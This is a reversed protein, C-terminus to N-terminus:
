KGPNKIVPMYKKVKKLVALKEVREMQKLVKPDLYHEETVQESAHGASKSADKKDAGRVVLQTLSSKRLIKFTCEITPTDPEKCLIEKNIHRLNTKFANSFNKDNFPNGNKDTLLYPGKPNLERIDGRTEESLWIPRSKEAKPMYYNVGRKKDEGVEEIWTEGTKMNIKEILMNCVEEGRCSNEYGLRIAIRMKLSSYKIMLELQWPQLTAVKVSGVPLPDIIDLNIVPVYGEQMGWKFARVCSGTNKNAGYYDEEKKDADKRLSRRFEAVKEFTLDNMYRLRILRKFHALAYKYEEITRPRYLNKGTTKDRVERLYRLYESVFFDFAVSGDLPRRELSQRARRAM